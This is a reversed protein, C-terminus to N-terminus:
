TCVEIITMGNVIESQCEMGSIEFLYHTDIHKPIHRKFNTAHAGAYKDVLLDAAFYNYNYCCLEVFDM